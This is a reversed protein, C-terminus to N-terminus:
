HHCFVPARSSDLVQRTTSGIFFDRLPSHGHVGMVLLGACLHDVQDLIVQAPHRDTEIVAPRADLDHLRLFEVTRDARRTADVGNTSAIVVHVPGSRGLGTAQFASLARASPLSGDHAVVVAEGEVAVKPVAVVPRPCERLVKVLTQDGQGGSGFEFHTPRGLVVLDSREAEEIIRAYPLGFEERAHFRVKAEECRRVFQSRVEEARERLRHALPAPKSGDPYIDVLMAAQTALMGPDDVVALGDAFADF